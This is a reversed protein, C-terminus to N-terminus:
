VRVKGFWRQWRRGNDSGMALAVVLHLLWRSFSCGVEVCYKYFAFASLLRGYGFVNAFLQEAAMKVVRDSRSRWRHWVEVLEGAFIDLLDWFFFIAPSVRRRFLFAISEMDCLRTVMTTGVSNYIQWWWQGSRRNVLLTLSLCLSLSLPSLSLPSLSPFIPSPSSFPLIPIFYFYFSFISYNIM